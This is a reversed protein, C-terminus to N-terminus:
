LGIRRRNIPIGPSAAKRDLMRAYILAASGFASLIFGQILTPQTILNLLGSGVERGLPSLVGPGQKLLSALVQDVFTLSFLLLGVGFILLLAGAVVLPWGTWRLFSRFDISGMKAAILGITLVVLWTWSLILRLRVLEQKLQTLEEPAQGNDLSALDITDPASALFSGMITKAGLQLQSYVPEPPLCVPIALFEQNLSFLPSQDCPPLSNLIVNLIEDSKTLAQEKWAKLNIQVDPFATDSDLWAIFADVVQDVTDDVLDSPAVLKTIKNWDEESLHSLALQALNSGSEEGGLMQRPTQFVLSLVWASGRISEHVLAKATERDFILNGINHMVLSLPFAILFVALIIAAFFRLVAKIM